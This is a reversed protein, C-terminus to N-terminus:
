LSCAFVCLSIFYFLFSICPDPKGVKRTHDKTKQPGALLLELPLSFPRPISLYVFYM